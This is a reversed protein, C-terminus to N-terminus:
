MKSHNIKVVKGRNESLELICLDKFALSFDRLSLELMCLYEFALSLDTCMRMNMHMSISVSQYSTIVYCLVLSKAAFMHANKFTCM